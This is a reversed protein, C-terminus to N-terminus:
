SGAWLQGDGAPTGRATPALHGELWVLTRRWADAAAVEDFSERVDCHFGHDADPYRMIATDVDTTSHLGERLQEVDEVPISGDVDGSLGPWPTRVGAIPGTLAPVAESRATVTGGGYSGVGAGLAEHGAVLFTVRGGLCVGVIGIQRDDVGVAEQVVVVAGRTAGDPLTGFAPMPGDSTDLTITRTEV